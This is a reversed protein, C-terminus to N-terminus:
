RTLVRYLILVGFCCGNGIILVLNLHADQRVVGYFEYWYTCETYMIKAVGQPM